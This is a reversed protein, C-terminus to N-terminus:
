KEKQGHLPCNDGVWFSPFEYPDRGDDRPWPIGLGHNNDLVPCFCGASLAEPSGPNSPM